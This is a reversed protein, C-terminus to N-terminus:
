WNLKIQGDGIPEVVLDSPSPINMTTTNSTAYGSENEDSFAKVRYTYDTGYNLGTDIYETTNKGLEVIQSFSGSGIKKEIRFGSILDYEQTWTLKIESDSIIFVQLDSPAWADLDVEPDFPNSRKRDECTTFLLVM